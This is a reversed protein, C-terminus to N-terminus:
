ILCVACVAAPAQAASWPPVHVLLSCSFVGAAFHKAGLKVCIYVNVETHLAFLALLSSRMPWSCYSAEECVGKVHCCMYTDAYRVAGPDCEAVSDIECAKCQRLALDLCGDKASICTDM